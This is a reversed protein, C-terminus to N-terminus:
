LQNTCVEIGFETFWSGMATSLLLGAMSLLRGTSAVRDELWLV